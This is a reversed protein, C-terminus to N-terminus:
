KDELVKPKQFTQFIQEISLNRDELDHKLDSTEHFIAKSNKLFRRLNKIDSTEHYDLLQHLQSRFDESLGVM